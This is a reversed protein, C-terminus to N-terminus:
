VAGERRWELDKVDTSTQIAAVTAFKVGGEAATM